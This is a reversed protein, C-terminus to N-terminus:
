TDPFRGTAERCAAIAKDAQSRLTQDSVGAATRDPDGIPAALRDCELTPTDTLGQAPVAAACLCLMTMLLSPLRM